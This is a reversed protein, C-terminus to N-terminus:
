YSQKGIVRTMGDAELAPPEDGEVNEEPDEEDPDIALINNLDLKIKANTSDFRCEFFQNAEDRYDLEVMAGNFKNRGQLNIIRAKNGALRRAVKDTINQDVAEIALM